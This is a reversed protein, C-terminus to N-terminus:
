SQTNIETQTQPKKHTNATQDAATERDLMARLKNGHAAARIRNPAREYAHGANIYESETHHM